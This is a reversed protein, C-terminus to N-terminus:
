RGGVGLGLMADFGNQILNESRPQFEVRSLVNQAFEDRNFIEVRSM